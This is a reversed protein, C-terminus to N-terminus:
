GEFPASATDKERRLGHLLRFDQSRPFHSKSLMSRPSNHNVLRFDQAMQSSEGLIFWSFGPSPLVPSFLTIMRLQKPDIPFGGPYGGM